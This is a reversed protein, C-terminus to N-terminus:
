ADGGAVVSLTKCRGSRCPACGSKSSSSTSDVCQRYTGHGRTRREGPDAASPREERAEACEGDARDGAPQARRRGRQHCAAARHHSRAGAGPQLRAVCEFTMSSTTPMPTSRRRWTARRVAQRGACADARAESLGANRRQHRHRLVRQRNEDCRPQETFSGGNYGPDNRITEIMLRRMMWNRSSMETPQAAM